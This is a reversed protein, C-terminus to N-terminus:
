VAGGSRFERDAPEIDELELEDLVEGVDIMLGSDMDKSSFLSRGRLLWREAYKVVEEAATGAGIRDCLVRCDLDLLGMPEREPGRCGEM